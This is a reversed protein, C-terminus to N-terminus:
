RANVRVSHNGIRVIYSGARPALITMEPSGIRGKALVKGQLDFLAYPKGVPAVHIQFNRGSATVSWTPSPLNAVLADSPEAPCSSPECYLAYVTQDKSFVTTETVKVSDETYWGFFVKGDPSEPAAPFPVLGKSNSYRNSSIDGNDFVIKYIPKHFANAFIPYGVSDRSWIESNAAMGNMTNLLWAFRNSQIDSDYYCNTKSDSKSCIIGANVGDTVGFCNLLKASSEDVKVFVDTPKGFNRCEAVSGANWSAISGGSSSGNNTCRSITGANQGVIGGANSGSISDVNVCNVITGANQGVIGGVNTGSVSAKNICDAVTGANWGAIGGSYNNDSTTKGDNTCGSLNGWNFAVIGGSYARSVISSKVSKLNKITASEGAVGFIGAFKEQESYLGYITREAGDFTGNFMVSSDKGIPTWNIASTKSTDGMFKIDNALMANISNKGSNVQKAFWALEEVKTIEYFIKGNIRKSDPESVYGTWDAAYLSVALCFFLTLALKSIKM